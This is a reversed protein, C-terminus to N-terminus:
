SGDSRPPMAFIGPGRRQLVSASVLSVTTCADRYVDITCPDYEKQLATEVMPNKSSVSLSALDEQTQPM